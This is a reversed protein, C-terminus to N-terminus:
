KVIKSAQYRVYLIIPIVMLGSLYKVITQGYVPPEFFNFIGFAIGVFLISDIPTSFLNSVTIRFILGRKTITYVLWDVFESVIFAVASALAVKWAPIPMDTLVFSLLATIITSAIMFYWVKHGYERQVFDRLSFTLGIALAGCPFVLGMFEVLGFISVLLNGFIISIIYAYGFMIKKSFM